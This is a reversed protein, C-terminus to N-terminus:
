GRNGDDNGRAERFAQRVEDRLKDDDWPKSLYKWIAGRNIAETVTSLESYGSLVIRVTDPYLEKVRSLLEVGSMEPMRQDSIIVQVQNVALLELAERGSNATLVRFSERRFLRKLSNLINQEDDILLLTLQGDRDSGEDFRQRRGQRLMAAIEEAPCPRSFFFGQMEDCDHRRLFTMQAETEVGEAIVKKNLKHAMAITATAISANIPNATIDRIFSQDIKLQDIAFRSLYALSSYGTGFDDLSLHVGISKLRDFILVAQTADHMMASETLELELYRPELGFEDLVAAVSDPLNSYRFHRASLNVAMRLTPLGEVQWAKAQQVATRLVWEDIPVILGTEEAIPIFDNPPVLGREPHQWRVLAEVGVIEGSFLSVQPQYHLILENRDVVHRLENSLDHRANAGANMEPLYFRYTDGGDRKAAFMAVDANNLLEQAERGDLPYSSIGISATVVLEHEDFRMPKRVAALLRQATDAHVAQDISEGFLIVFEDGGVTIVEDSQRVAQRLRNPVELLAQDAVIQGLSANVAKFKDLDVYALMLGSHRTKRQDIARSIKEILQGRNPLGVIEEVPGSDNAPTGKPYQFISEDKVCFFHEIKGSEGRIPSIHMFEWCTEGNKRRNLMGGHWTGGALVAGWMEAYTERPTQGSQFIRAGQGILEGAEYGTTALQRANVYEIKGATDTIIIGLANQEIAQRFSDLQAVQRRLQDIEEREREPDSDSM